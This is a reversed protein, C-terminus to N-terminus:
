IVILWHSACLAGVRHPPTRTSSATEGWRRRATSPQIPKHFPRSSLPFGRRVSVVGLSCTSPIAYKDGFPIPTDSVSRHVRRLLGDVEDAAVGAPGASARRRRLAGGLRLPSRGLRIRQSVTRLVADGALHSYTDNVNKFHDLDILVVALRSRERVCRALERALIDLIARRNWLQTLDDHTAVVQLKRHSEELEATRLQILRRLERELGPVLLTRGNGGRRHCRLCVYSHSRADVLVSGSACPHGAALPEPNSVRYAVSLAAPGSDGHHCVSRDSKSGAAM